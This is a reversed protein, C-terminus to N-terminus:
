NPFIKSCLYIFKYFKSYIKMLPFPYEILEGHFRRKFESFKIWSKREKPFRPDFLGEFDFTKLGLGKALKIAEWVLLYNALLEYGTKTIGTNMYVATDKLLGLWVTAIPQNQFIAFLLVSSDKFAQMKKYFEDYGPAYFNKIKRLNVFLNYFKKFDKDDQLDKLFIQKIELNNNQAKKINRRANESFSAFIEKGSKQLDIYVTLTHTLSTNSKVFGNKTFEDRKFDKSEPEVIVFMAKHKKALKDIELTSLSNKPHQIKIISKGLLPIPKIFAQSKGIKEVVWGISSLYEGWQPSQRIDM